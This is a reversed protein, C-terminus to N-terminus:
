EKPKSPTLDFHCSLNAEAMSLLSLMRKTRDPQPKMEDVTEPEGYDPEGETTLSYQRKPSLGPIWAITSNPEVFMAYLTEMAKREVEEAGIAAVEGAMTLADPAKSAIYEAHIEPNSSSTGLLEEMTTIQVTIFKSM